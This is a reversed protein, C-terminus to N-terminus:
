CVISHWYLLSCQITLQPVLRANGNVAKAASARATGLKALFCKRGLDDAFIIRRWHVHHLVSLPKCQVPSGVRQSSGTSGLGRKTMWGGNAQSEANQNNVAHGDDNLQTTTDPSKLADFTSIVVDFTACRSATAFRKRDSCPIDAHNIVSFPTHERLAREWFAIDEKSRVVILTQGYLSSDGAFRDEGRSSQMDSEILLKVVVNVVQERDLSFIIGKSDSSMKEEQGIDSSDRQLMWDFVHYLEEGEQGTYVGLPDRFDCAIHRPHDRRSGEKQKTRKSRKIHLPNYHFPVGDKLAVNSSVERLRARGPRNRFM